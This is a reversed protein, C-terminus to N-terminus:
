PDEVAGGWTGAWGVDLALLGQRLRVGLLGRLRPLKSRAELVLALVLPLPRHPLRGALGSTRAQLQRLPPPGLYHGWGGQAVPVGQM